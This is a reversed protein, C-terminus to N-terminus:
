LSMEEEMFIDDEEKFIDEHKEKCDILHIKYQTNEGMRAKHMLLYAYNSDLSLDNFNEGVSVLADKKDYIAILYRGKYLCM